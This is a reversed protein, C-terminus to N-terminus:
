TKDKHCQKIWLKVLPWLSPGNPISLPRCYPFIKLDSSQIFPGMVFSNMKVTLNFLTAAFTRFCRWEAIWEMSSEILGFSIFIHCHHEVTPRGWGDKLVKKFLTMMEQRKKTWKRRKLCVNCNKGCNYTFFTGYYATSPNSGVVKVVHTEEWLWYVLAGAM